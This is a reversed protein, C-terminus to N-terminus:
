EGLWYDMDVTNHLPVHSKIYGTSDILDHGADWSAMGYPEYDDDSVLLLEALENENIFNSM